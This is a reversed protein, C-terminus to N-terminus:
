IKKKKGSKEEKRGEKRGKIFLNYTMIFDHTVSFSQM